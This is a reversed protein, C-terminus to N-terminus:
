RAVGKVLFFLRHCSSIMMAGVDSLMANRDRFAEKLEKSLLAKFQSINFYM